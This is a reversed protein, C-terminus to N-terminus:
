RRWTRRYNIRGTRPERSAIPRATGERDARAGAAAPRVPVRRSPRGTAQGAQTARDTTLAEITLSGQDSELLKWTLWDHPLCVAAARRANDPEHEPAMPTERCHLSGAARKRDGRWEDPASSTVLERGSSRDRTTGCFRRVSSRRMKTSASGHRATTRCDIHRRRRRHGGRIRPTEAAGGVLGTSRSPRPPIPRGARACSSVPSLM